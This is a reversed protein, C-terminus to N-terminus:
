RFMLEMSNGVDLDVVIYKTNTRMNLLPLQFPMEEKSEFISKADSPVEYNGTKKHEEDLYAIKFGKIHKFKEDDNRVIGKMWVVERGEFEGGYVSLDYLRLGDEHEMGIATYVSHSQPLIGIIKDKYLLFAYAINIVFLSLIAAKIFISVPASKDKTIVPLTKKLYSKQLESFNPQQEDPTLSTRVEEVVRNREEKTPPEQLWVHACKACKVKRGKSSISDAKVIYSTKCNSCTIRM